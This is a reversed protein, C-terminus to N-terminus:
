EGSLEGIQEVVINSSKAQVLGTSVVMAYVAELRGDGSLDTLSFDSIDGSSQGFQSYQLATDGFDVATLAADTSASNGFVTLSGTVVYDANLDRGIQVPDKGPAPADERIVKASRGIRAAMIDMIGKNLFTLDKESHITLPLILVRKAKEEALAPSIFLSSFATLLCLFVNLRRPYRKM